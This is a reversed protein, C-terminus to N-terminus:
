DTSIWLKMRASKESGGIRMDYKLDLTGGSPTLEARIKKTKIVTDFKYPPIEYLSKHEMGEGFEFLSEISGGRKVTVRGDKVSIESSVFGGETNESYSVTVEGDSFRYFGDAFSETREADGEPLGSADLNEIHSLIKIKAEKITTM